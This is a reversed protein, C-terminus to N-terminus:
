ARKPGLGRLRVAQRRALLDEIEDRGRVLRRALALNRPREPQVPLVLDHELGQELVHGVLSQDVREGPRANWLDPPTGFTVTSRTTSTSSRCTQATGSCHCASVGGGFSRTISRPRRLRRQPDAVPDERPGLLLAGADDGM